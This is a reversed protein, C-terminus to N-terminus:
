PQTALLARLEERAGAGTVRLVLMADRAPIELTFALHRCCRRENELFAAVELLRDPPLAFTLGNEIERVATEDAFLVTRALAFHAKRQDAPIASLDCIIADDTDPMRIGATATAIPNTSPSM